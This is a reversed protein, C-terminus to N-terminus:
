KALIGYFPEGLALKTEKIHSFGNERLEAKLESLSPLPSCGRTSRLVLDFNAAAISDGQLLSVVALRGGSALLSRITRFLGPRRDPQFYYVNNYLTVLEFPGTIDAPLNHIDAAVVKFRERIGWASLNALAQGVVEEDLDIAVGSLNPNAEAAYRLYIGSGCGIEFMRMSQHTRVTAKVFSQM